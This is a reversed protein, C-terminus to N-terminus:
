IHHLEQIYGREVLAQPPKDCLTDGRIVINTFMYKLTAGRIQINRLIAKLTAGRSWPRPPSLSRVVDNSSINLQSTSVDMRQFNTAITIVIYIYIYVYTERESEREIIYIYIYKHKWQENNDTQKLRFWLTKGRCVM